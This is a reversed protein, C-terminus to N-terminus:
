SSQPIKKMMKFLNLKKMKKVKKLIKMKKLKKFKLMIKIIWNFQINISTQINKRIRDGGKSIIRSM